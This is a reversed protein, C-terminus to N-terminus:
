PFSLLPKFFFLDSRFRLVWSTVSEHQHYVPLRVSLWADIKLIVIAPAPPPPSRNQCKSLTELEDAVLWARWGCEPTTRTDVLSVSAGLPQLSMEPQPCHPASGPSSEGSSTDNGPHCASSGSVNETIIGLGM